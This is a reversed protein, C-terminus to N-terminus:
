CDRQWLTSVPTAEGTDTLRVSEVRQIRFGAPDLTLLSRLFDANTTLSTRAGGDHEYCVQYAHERDRRLRRLRPPAKRRPKKRRKPKSRSPLDPPPEFHYAGHLIAQIAQECEWIRVFEAERERLLDTIQLSQLPDM